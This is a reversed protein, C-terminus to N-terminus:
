LQIDVVVENNPIADIVSGIFYNIKVSAGNNMKNFLTTTTAFHPHKDHYIKYVQEGLAKFEGWGQNNNYTLNVDGGSNHFIEIDICYNKLGKNIANLCIDAGYFHFGRLDENFKLNNRKDVIMAFEDVTEVPFVIQPYRNDAYNYGTIQGNILAVGAIGLVGFKGLTQEIQKLKKFPEPEKFIIDQHTLFQYRTDSVEMLMNLAEGSYSLNGLNNIFNYEYPITSNLSALVKELESKKTAVIQVSFEKHSRAYPYVGKNIWDVMYKQLDTISHETDDGKRSFHDVHIIAKERICYNRYGLKTVKLNLDVDQFVDIYKEDFGDVKNFISKDMMLFAATVGEVEANTNPVNNIDHMINYHGLRKWVGNPHYLTQGDHQIKNKDRDFVLRHGVCGISSINNYKMMETVADYTLFVDNNMFLLVEGESQQALFNNNKSFNYTHDMFIKIGDIEIKKYYDLVTQNTTGTDCILVEYDHYTVHENISDICRQIIGDGDKTVICISIKPNCVRNMKDWGVFPKYMQNGRPIANKPLVKTLPITKDVEEFYGMKKYHVQNTKFIDGPNLVRQYGGDSIRMPRDGIYKLRIM